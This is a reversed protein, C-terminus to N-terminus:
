KRKKVAKGGSPRFKKHSKFGRKKSNRMRSGEWQMQKESSKDKNAVEELTGHNKLKGSEELIESFDDAAAFLSSMDAKEKLKRRFDKDNMVKVGKRKDGDDSDLEEDSSSFSMAEMDDSEDDLSLDDNDSSDGDEWDNEEKEADEEDGNEESKRKKGKIKKGEVDNLEKMYDVDVESSDKTKPGLSDLYADFEEDDVSNDSDSNDEDDAGRLERRKKLFEFIFRENETCNEESISRVPQGRSGMPKYERSKKHAKQVVSKVEKESKKKPNKFSFRDLFQALSFDVLPDGYYTNKQKELVCEVFKQVTPHFHTSFRLMEVFPEYQAGAGAPNRYFPDYKLPLRSVKPKKEEQEEVKAGNLDVHCWSESSKSKTKVRKKAKKPSDEDADSYHESDSDFLQSKVENKVIDEATPKEQMQNFEPRDQLIKQMIVFVGCAMQSPLYFTIQLLRKLFAQARPIDKDIAVARHIIYLFQASWKHTMSTLEISVMKRYLASYFRDSNLGSCTVIIQLLLGLAQIAIRIEAFHILRYIVDQLEENLPNAATSSEEDVANAVSRRLCRLIAQMTRNNVMGKDVLIKFYSFCINTLKRCVEASCLGATEALFTLTVHQARESINPRFILREAERVIVGCMNPHQHAVESLHYQAKAAVKVTPDGMKNVLMSLLMSEKEPSNILLKAACVIALCKHVDQGSKLVGDLNQLFTFYRQKLESEFHWYMYVKDLFSKELQKESKLKNWDSGRQDIAVLKRNDPLISTIFLDTIVDIVDVSAKNAAKTLGILVDLASLNALPNSQFLLTGANARDRLTGRHLATQLWKSDSPNRKLISDFNKEFTSQCTSTLVKLEDESLEVIEGSNYKQVEQFWKKAENEM